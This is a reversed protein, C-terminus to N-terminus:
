YVVIPSFPPLSLSPSVLVHDDTQGLSQDDDWIAQDPQTKLIQPTKKPARPPFSSSMPQHCGSDPLTLLIGLPPLFYALRVLFHDRESVGQKTSPQMPRPPTGPYESLM